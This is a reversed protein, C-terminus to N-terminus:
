CHSPKYWDNRICRKPGQPIQFVNNGCHTGPVEAFLPGQCTLARVATALIVLSEQLLVLRHM